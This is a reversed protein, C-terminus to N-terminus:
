LRWVLLCDESGKRFVLINQLGRVGAQKESHVRPGATKILRGDPSQRGGEGRARFSDIHDDSRSPYPLGIEVPPIVQEKLKRDGVPDIEVCPDVTRSVAVPRSIKVPRNGRTTQFAM